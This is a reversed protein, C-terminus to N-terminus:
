RREGVVVTTVNAMWGLASTKFTYGIQVKGSADSLAAALEMPTHVDRTAVSTIIYGRHLGGFDAVSGPIVDVIEAGKNDETTRVYIGLASVPMSASPTSSSSNGPESKEKSHRGFIYAIGASARYNNQTDSPGSFINHRSFIYDASVRVAWPGSIRQEVGGGFAGAFGDQSFGRSVILANIPPISVSASVDASLHDGGLLAHVFFPKFNLRPGALYSYDRFKIRGTATVTITGTGTPDPITETVSSSYTRYYGSVSFEVGFWRNLNGSGGGEWGNASQRSTLGNTDINLYSYGGHVEAKDYDQASVTSSVVCVVACVAAFAWRM